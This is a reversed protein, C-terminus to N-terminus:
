RINKDLIGHTFGSGIVRHLATYAELMHLHTNMTKPANLDRESLRVDDIPSWDEDFAEIYGGGENDWARDEVLRALEVALETAKNGGLSAYASLAYIAFAQAYTQKRVSAPAGDATVSWYIGGYRRDLFRKAIYDFLADAAERAAGEGTLAAYESFFWLTRTQLISSRIADVNVINKDSIEGYIGGQAHDVAHTLWWSAIDSLEKEFEAAQLTNLSGSMM